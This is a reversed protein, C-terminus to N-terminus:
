RRCLCANISRPDLLVRILIALTFFIVLLLIGGMGNPTWGGPSILMIAYVWGTIILGLMTVVLALIRCRLWSCVRYDGDEEGYGGGEQAHPAHHDNNTTSSSLSAAPPSVQLALCLECHLADQISEGRQVRADKWAQICATHAFGNCKCGLRESCPEMCVRCAGAAEEVSSCVLV